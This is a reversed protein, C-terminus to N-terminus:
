LSDKSFGDRFFEEAFIRIDLQRLYFSDIAVDAPPTYDIKLDRVTVSPKKRERTFSAFNVVLRRMSSDATVSRAFTEEVGRRMSFTYVNRRSGDALETWVGGRMGKNEDLSDVLYRASIRYDGARISDLAIYLRSSDRLRKMTLLSDAYVTRTFARRSANTITDLVAVEREYHTGEADLMGIAAEVVDSLRSSKRKSFNGITYEVDEASYGYRDFIPEYIRLSDTRIGQDSIYANALFADRFILALKDDPIIKHHSCAATLLLLFLLTRKTM